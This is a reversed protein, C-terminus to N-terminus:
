CCCSSCAGWFRGDLWLNLEDGRGTIPLPKDIMQDGPASTLYVPQYYGYGRDLQVIWLTNPRVKIPWKNWGRVFLTLTNSIPTVTTTYSYFPTQGVYLPLEDWPLEVWDAEALRQWNKRVRSTLPTNCATVM